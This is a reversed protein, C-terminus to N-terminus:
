AGPAPQPPEVFRIKRWVSEEVTDLVWGNLVLDFEKELIEKLVGFATELHYDLGVDDVNGYRHQIANREDVLLEVRAHFGIRDVSWLAALRDLADNVTLTGSGKEFISVNNEVLAAKVVLEVAQALNLM